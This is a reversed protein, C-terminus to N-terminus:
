VRIEAHRNDDGQGSEDEGAHRIIGTLVDNDPATFSHIMFNQRGPMVPLSKRAIKGGTNDQQDGHVPGHPEAKLATKDIVNLMTILLAQLTQAICQALLIGLM